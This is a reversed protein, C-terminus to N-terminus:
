TLWFEDERKRENNNGGWERIKKNIDENIMIDIVLVIV